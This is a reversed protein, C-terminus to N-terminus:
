GNCESKHKFYQCWNTQSLNVVFCLTHVDNVTKGLHTIKINAMYTTPVIKFVFKHLEAIHM